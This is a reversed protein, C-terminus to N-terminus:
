RWRISEVLHEIDAQMYDIVPALSDNNPTVNIYLAGRLYHSNSDTLWFQCTSAVKSGKLYYVTGYVKNEKDEYGQEEVGTAFQYHQELYRLSEDTQSRLSDPSPLHRYTLFIVGNWQPYQLDIWLEGKPADKEVLEICNNAEFTFPLTKDVLGYEHEPMDIRLYAYPKPTYDNHHCACLLLFILSLFINRKM